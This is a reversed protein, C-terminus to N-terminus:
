EANSDEKPLTIRFAHGDTVSFLDCEAKTLLKYIYYFNGMDVINDERNFVIVTDMINLSM